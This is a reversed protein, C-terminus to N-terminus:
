NRNEYKDLLHNALIAAVATGTVAGATMATNRLGGNRGAAKVLLSGVGTGAVFGLAAGGYRAGTILDHRNVPDIKRKNKRVMVRKGNRTQYYHGQANFNIMKVKQRKFSAKSTGNSPRKGGYTVAGL